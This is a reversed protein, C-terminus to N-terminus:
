TQCAWSNWSYPWRLHSMLPSRKPAPAMWQGITRLPQFATPRVRSPLVNIMARLRELFAGSIASTRMRWPAQVAIFSSPLATFGIASHLAGFATGRLEQGGLDPVLARQLTDSAAFFVGYAVFLGVAQLWRDIEDIVSQDVENSLYQLYGRLGSSQWDRIRQADFVFEREPEPRLPGLYDTRRLFQEVTQRLEHLLAGVFRLDASSATSRSTDEPTALTPLFGSVLEIRAGAWAPDEDVEHGHLIDSHFWWEDEGGTATGYDLRYAAFIILEPHGETRSQPYAIKLETLRPPERVDEQEDKWEYEYQLWLEVQDQAQSVPVPPLGERRRQQNVLRILFDLTDSLRCRFAFLVPKPWDPSSQSIHIMARFGGIDVGRRAAYVFPGSGEEAGLSQKLLRLARGIVSKGSSNKGFLLTIPRLEIWDTNQFAMFNELRIAEVSM